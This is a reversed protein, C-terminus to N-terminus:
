PMSSAFDIVDRSSNEQAGSRRQMAIDAVLDALERDGLRM